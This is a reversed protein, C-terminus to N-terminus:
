LYEYDIVTGAVSLQRGSITRSGGAPVLVLVAAQGPNLSITTTGTVGLALFRHSVADYLDISSTGATVQVSAASPNPNYYLSTPDAAGPNTDSVLLDTRLVGQVNTAIALKGLIATSWASYPAFDTWASAASGFYKVDSTAYPNQGAFYHKVGEYPISSVGTTSAFNPSSQNASPLGDTFTVKESNAVRLLWAGIDIADHPAYRALPAIAGVAVNTDMGFAYGGTNASSGMLGIADYGGWTDAIMGYGSRAGNYGNNFIWNLFTDVPLNQGNKANLKAALLPGFFGLVEYLTTASAPRTAMDAMAQEAATLFSTDGSQQWALYEVWATGIALDPQYVVPMAGDNQAPYNPYADLFQQTKGDVFDYCWFNWNAAHMTPVADRWARATALFESRMTTYSSSPYKDLTQAWQITPYLTYWEACKGDFSPNDYILDKQTGDSATVVSNYVDMQAIRDTSNYNSMNFGDLTAGYLAGIDGLAECRTTTEGVYSPISFAAGSYTGTYPSAGQCTSPSTTPGATYSRLLPGYSGVNNGSFALTEYDTSTQLYNKLSYSAPLGQFQSAYPHTGPIAASLFFDDACLTGTAYTNSSMYIRVSAANAPALLMRTAKQWGTSSGDVMVLSPTGVAASNSDYFQAAVFMEFGGAPPAPVPINSWYEQYTLLYSSGPQVSIPDMVWSGAHDKASDTRQICMSHGPTFSQSTSWVAQGQYAALGGKAWNDPVGDSNSDLEVLPNPVSNAGSQPNQATAAALTIDDLCVSGTAAIDSTIRISLATATAPATIIHVAPQWGNSYGSVTYYTPSGVPAGLANYFVAQYFMNGTTNFGQEWRLEYSLGPEVVSLPDSDWEGYADTRNDVVCLSHTPSYATNTAWSDMTNDTGGRTWGDPKGNSTVSTELQSNPWLNTSTGLSTTSVARVSIDDICQSGTVTNDGTPGSSNLTIGVASAGAPVTFDNTVLLWGNSNGTVPLTTAAAVLTGTSNYFGVQYSMTKSSTYGQEWSVEYPQGATVIQQSAFATAFADTRGDSICLSHTPSYATATTWAAMTSDNGGFSWGTPVSGSGSELNGNSWLNNGSASAQAPTNTVTMLSLVLLTVLGVTVSKRPRSMTRVM